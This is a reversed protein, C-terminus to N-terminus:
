LSRAIRHSTARFTIIAAALQLLARWRRALRLRRVKIGGFCCLKRFAREVPSRRRREGRTPEEPVHARLGRSACADRVPAGRYGKDMAVTAGEPLPVLSSDLTPGLLVSDARNAAEAVLGLPTGLGDTLASIKAGSRARDCPNPGTAEGGNPALGLRGDVLLIMTRLGCLEEHNALALAWLREFVGDEAWEDLRGSLTDYSVGLYDKCRRKPIGDALWRLMARFVQQNSAYPRGGLGSPEPEPPFQSSIVDWEDDTVTHNNLINPQM